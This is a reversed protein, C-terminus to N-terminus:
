KICILLIWLREPMLGLQGSNVMAGACMPCEKTVYITVDGLRWDGLFSSVQTILLM